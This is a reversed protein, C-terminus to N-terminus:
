SVSRVRRRGPAALLPPPPEPAPLEEVLVMLAGGACKGFHRELVAPGGAAGLQYCAFSREPAPPGVAVVTECTTCYLSARFLRTPVLKIGDGDSGM